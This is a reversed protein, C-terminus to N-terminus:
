PLQSPPPNGNLTAVILECERARKLQRSIERPPSTFDSPDYDAHLRLSHMRSGLLGLQRIQVDTQQQCWDWLKKHLGPLNGTFSRSRAENLVLHYVYYYSRGLSTRQSGTDTALRLDHAIVLFERWDIAM